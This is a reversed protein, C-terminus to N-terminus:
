GSPRSARPCSCATRPAGTSRTSPSRSSTTSCRRTRSACCGRPSRCTPRATRSRGRRVPRQARGFASRRAPGRCRRARRTRRAARRRARRVRHVPPGLRRAARDHAVAAARHARGRPRRGRPARDAAPARHRAGHEHPRGLRAGRILRRLGLPHLDGVLADVLEAPTSRSTRCACSTSRRARGDVGARVGDARPGPSPAAPPRSPRSASARRTSSGGSSGAGTSRSRRTTRRSRSSRACCRTTSATSSPSARRARRAPRADGSWWTEAARWSSATSRARDAAHAARAQRPLLLLVGDALHGRPDRDARHEARRLSAGESLLAETAALVAAEIAARKDSQRGLSALVRAYGQCGTLCATSERAM